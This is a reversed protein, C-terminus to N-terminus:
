GRVFWLNNNCMLSEPWSMNGILFLLSHLSSDLNVKSVWPCTTDV